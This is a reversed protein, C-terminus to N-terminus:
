IQRPRTALQEDLLEIVEGPAIRGGPEVTVWRGALNSLV